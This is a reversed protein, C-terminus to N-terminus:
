NLFQRLLTDDYFHPKIKLLKCCWFSMGFCKLLRVWRCRLHWLIPIVYYNPRFIRSFIINHILITVNKSLCAESTTNGCSFASRRQYGAQQLMHSRYYVSFEKSILIKIATTSMFLIVIPLLLHERQSVGTAAGTLSPSSFLVTRDRTLISGLDTSGM